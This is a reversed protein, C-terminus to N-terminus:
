GRNHIETLSVRLSSPRIAEPWRSTFCARHCISASGQMGTLALPLLMRPIERIMNVNRLLSCFIQLPPKQVLIPGAASGREKGWGSKVTTVSTEYRPQPLWRPSTSILPRQDGASDRSLILRKSSLAIRKSNFAKRGDMLPLSTCTNVSLVVPM